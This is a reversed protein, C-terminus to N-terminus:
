QQEQVKIISVQRKVKTSRSLEQRELLRRVKTTSNLVHVVISSVVIENIAILNVVIEKVVIEKIVILNVVIEKIVILNVVIEKIAILNVVIEKVVIEKIAILNVVIEKIAILNVVIEKVVIEKIAILNVVIEKIVILSVMTSGVTTDVKPVGIESTKGIDEITGAEGTRDFNMTLYEVIIGDRDEGCIAEIIIEGSRIYEEM